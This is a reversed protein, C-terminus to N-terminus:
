EGKKKFLKLVSEIAIDVVVVPWLLSILLRSWISDALLEPHNKNILYTLTFFFGTAVILYIAFM